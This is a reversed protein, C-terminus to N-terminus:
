DFKVKLLAITHADVDSLEVHGLEHEDSPECDPTISAIFSKGIFSPKAAMSFGSGQPATPGTWGSGLSSLPLPARLRKRLDALAKDVNFNAGVPEALGARKRLVTLDTQWAQSKSWALLDALVVDSFSYGNMTVHQKPITNAASLMEKTFFSESM